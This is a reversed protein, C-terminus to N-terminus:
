ALIHGTAFMTTGLVLATSSLTVYLWRAARMTDLREGAIAFVPFAALLYRGTGMFDDTSITPILVAAAVFVAYGMGFRRAVTPIAALFVICMLAQLVLPVWIDVSDHTLHDFFALKFWTALGPTRDWGHAGEAEVFAFPHGFRFALWVCWAGIGLGAIAVSFDRAKRERRALVIAILGILVAIGTPRAATAVIGLAGAAVPRDSEILVFAGIAAALFLADSYAAGYLFWAYPYIALAILAWMTATPTLRSRCWRQFLVFVAIGSAVTVLIAALDVGGPLAVSLLRVVLPYAPFFAVSSQQHPHFSYGHQAIDVYWTGDWWLWNGLLWDAVMHPRPPANGQTWMQPALAVVLTLTAAIACYLRVAPFARVRAPETSTAQVSVVELGVHTL